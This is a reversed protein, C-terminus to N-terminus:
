QIVPGAIFQGTGANYYFKHEVKDYMCPTGNYDLVPIFDRVLVNNDWIKANYLRSSPTFYINDNNESALLFLNKNTSFDTTPLNQECLLNQETDYISAKHNNNMDIVVVKGLMSNKASCNIDTTRYYDFRISYSWYNPFFMAWFRGQNSVSGFLSGINVHTDGEPVLVSLQLRVSSKAFVDTDIYQTGTCEIYEIPIYEAWKKFHYGYKYPPIPPTISEGSDCTTTQYINGDVHWNITHAAAIGCLLLATILLAFRKM